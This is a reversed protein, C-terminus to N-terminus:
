DVRALITREAFRWRVGDHVLRDDYRGVSGVPQGVGVTTFYSAATATAGDVEVRPNSVLHLQTWPPHLDIIRRFYGVLEDRGCFRHDPVDGGDWWRAQWVGDDTFCDACGEADGGDLTHAYEYLVDVVARVAADDAGATAGVPIAHDPDAPM